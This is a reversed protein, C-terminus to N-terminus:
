ASSVALKQRSARSISVLPAIVASVYMAFGPIQVSFDVASHLTVLVFVALGTEPAFRLRRRRRLGKLFFALLTAAGLLWCVIGAVGLAFVTELYVNHAMDWVGNIGCRFNRYGPFVAEFSALGAGLPFYDKAGAWIGPLVCFRADQLGQQEARLLARGAIASIGGVAITALVLSLGLRLWRSSRRRISERGRGASAPRNTATVTLITLAVLSFGIGARSRTLALAALSLVLLMLFGAVSWIKRRQGVPLGQGQAALDWLRWWEVKHANYSLLGLQVIANVGFFTAATNRNVFFGTLNGIYHVKKGFLLMEPFLFFQLIALSASAGGFLGIFKLAQLSREDTDFLTLGLMFTMIPALLGLLAPWDDYATLSKASSAVIELEQLQHWAPQSPAGHPLDLTQYFVYVISIAAVGVAGIFGPRLHDSVGLLAVSVGLACATLVSIVGLPAKEVAGYNLLALGVIVWLFISLAARLAPGTLTEPIPRSM